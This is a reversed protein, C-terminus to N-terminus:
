KAVLVARAEPHFDDFFDYEGPALRRFVLSSSAGAELVKEKHLALSEFEAPTTGANRIEIKFPRNAPVEIRAPTVTGDKMVVHFVPVEDAARAPAALVVTLALALGAGCRRM